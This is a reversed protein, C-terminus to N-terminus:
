RRPVPDSANVLRFGCQSLYDNPWRGSERRFVFRCRCHHGWNLRCSVDSWEEVVLRSHLFVLQDLGPNYDDPLVGDSVATSSGSCSSANVFGTDTDRCLAYCLDGVCLAHLYGHTPGVPITRSMVILSARLGPAIRPPVNCDFTLASAPDPVMIARAPASARRVIRNKSIRQKQLQELRTQYQQTRSGSRSRGSRSKTKTAWNANEKRQLRRAGWQVDRYQFDDDAKCNTRNGFQTTRTQIQDTGSM